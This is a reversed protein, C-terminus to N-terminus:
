IPSTGHRVSAIAPVRSTPRGRHQGVAIDHLPSLPRNAYGVVRTFNRTVLRAALLGIKKSFHFVDPFCLRNPGGYVVDQFSHQM